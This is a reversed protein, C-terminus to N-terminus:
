ALICKAKLKQEARVAWHGGVLKLVSQSFHLLFIFVIRGQKSWYGAAAAGIMKLELWCFWVSKILYGSPFTFCLLLLVSLLFCSHYVKLFQCPLFFSPSTKLILFTYYKQCCKWSKLNRATKRVKQLEILASRSLWSSVTQSLSPSEICEAALIM